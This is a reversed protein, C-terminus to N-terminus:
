SPPSRRAGRAGRARRSARASRRSPCGGRCRCGASRRSRGTPGRSRLGGSRACCRSGRRGRGVAARRRHARRRDALARRLPGVDVDAPDTGRCSAAPRRRTSGTSGRPGRASRSRTRATEAEDDGGAEVRRLAVREAAAVHAGSSCAWSVRPEHIERAAADDDGELAPHGPRRWRAEDAAHLFARRKADSFLLGTASVGALDVVGGHKDLRNDANSRPETGAASNRFGFDETWTKADFDERSAREARDTEDRMM